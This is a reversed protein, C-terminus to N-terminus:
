KKTISPHTVLLKKVGHPYAFAIQALNNEVKLVVGDGFMGHNILDGKKLKKPDRKECFEQNLKM